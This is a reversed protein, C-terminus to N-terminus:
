ERLVISVIEYFEGPNGVYFVDVAHHTGGSFSSLVRRTKRPPCKQALILPFAYGPIPTFSLGPRSRGGQSVADQVGTRARVSALRATGPKEPLEGNNGKGNAM